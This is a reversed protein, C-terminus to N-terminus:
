YAPRVNSLTHAPPAELNELPCQSGSGSPRTEREGHSLTPTLPFPANPDVCAGVGVLPEHLSVRCALGEPDHREGHFMHPDKRM